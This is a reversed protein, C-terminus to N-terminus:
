LLHDQLTERLLGDGAEIYDSDKMELSKSYVAVGFPM